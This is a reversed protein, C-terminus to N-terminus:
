VSYSNRTLFVRHVIRKATITVYSMLAAYSTEHRASSLIRYMFSPAWGFLIDRKYFLKQIGGKGMDCVSASERVGVEGVPHIYRALFVFSDVSLTYFM